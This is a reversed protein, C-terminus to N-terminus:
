PTQEPPVRPAPDFPDAEGRIYLEAVRAFAVWEGPTPREGALCQSAFAGAQTRVQMDEVRKINAREEESPPRQVQIPVMQPPLGGLIDRANPM